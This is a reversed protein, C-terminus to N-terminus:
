KGKSSSKARPKGAAEAVQESIGAVQHPAMAIGALGWWVYALTDDAWAHSLLNILSLGILSAFLSLALPDSRRVWLLYGVGGNILLFLGLGLWGTEQGIQVYFNEAIRAPHNNYISAPGASGPGHGLPQHLLDHLGAKLATAHGEDSTTKIASHTQTHLLINELRINHRSNLALGGIIVLGLCALTAIWRKAQRSRLSILLILGISLVAGLWASRSFSFYLALVAALLFAVYQWGRKGRVILVTLLSIPILLYAGLPNAGRLTSEIRIYHVNHNITEYPAITNSNYGFHSLFDRPL